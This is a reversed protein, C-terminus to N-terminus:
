IILAVPIVQYSTNDGADHDYSSGNWYYHYNNSDYQTGTWANGSSPLWSGTDTYAPMRSAICINGYGNAVAWRNIEKWWNTCIEYAEDWSCSKVSANKWFLYITGAPSAITARQTYGASALASRAEATSPSFESAKAPSSATIANKIAQLGYTADKLISDLPTDLDSNIAKKIEAWSM